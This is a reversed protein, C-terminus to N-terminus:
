LKEIILNLAKSDIKLGTIESVALELGMENKMRDIEVVDKDEKYDYRLAAIIGRLLNEYPLDREVAMRFPKILRDNYGLKRIPERGVRILEDKLYPNKFRAIIREIYDLHSKRDFSYEKILINGSEVMAGRVLSEISDDEISEKVTEYGKSHGLYATIAHGTNLTFLKRELYPELKDVKKMGEIDLKGRIENRDVIWESFEEVRVDAINKKEGEYPPVIRDVACNPFGIYKELFILHDEDLYKQVERKLTASAGEMNECAIINLFNKNENEFRLKIGEALTKAIIALVKPGVATTILSVRAIEEILDKSTSRIAEIDRVTEIRTDRGVIEVDYEKNENIADIMEEIVDAFVLYYNSKSLLLGIFGRGINGAGFQIAKKM